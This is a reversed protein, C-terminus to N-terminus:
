VAEEGGGGKSVKELSQPPFFDVVMKQGNFWQCQVDCRRTQGTCTMDPGGSKLKVVTGAKCENFEMRRKREQSFLPTLFSHRNRLLKKALCEGRPPLSDYAGGAIGDVQKMHRLGHRYDIETM